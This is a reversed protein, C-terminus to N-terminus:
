KYISEGVRRTAQHLKTVNATTALLVLFIPLTAGLNRKRRAVGKGRRRRRCWWWWRLRKRREVWERGKDEKEKERLSLAEWDWAEAGLVEGQGSHDENREWM